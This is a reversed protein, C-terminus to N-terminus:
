PPTRARSPSAAAATGAESAISALTWPLKLPSAAAQQWSQEALSCHPAIVHNVPM